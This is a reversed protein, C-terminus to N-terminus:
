TIFNTIRQWQREVCSRCNTICRIIYLCNTNSFWHAFNCPVIHIGYPWCTSTDVQYRLARRHLSHGVGNWRTFLEYRCDSIMMFSKAESILLLLGAHFSRVSPGAKGTTKKINWNAIPGTLESLPYEEVTGDSRAIAILSDQAFRPSFRVLSASIRNEATVLAHM